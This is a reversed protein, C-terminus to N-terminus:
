KRCWYVLAPPINNWVVPSTKVESFYRELKRRFRIGSPLLLGHLYAFTTFIGGRKLSAVTEYLIDDQLEESFVAWPLGSIVADAHKVGYRRLYKRIEAASDQFIRIGPVNECAIRNMQENLEFGFFLTKEPDIREVVQRTFAGTGSGYEVIVKLRSFNIPQLMRRALKSSSPAIAGIRKPERCFQKVFQWRSM